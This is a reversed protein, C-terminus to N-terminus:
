SWRSNNYNIRNPIFKLLYFMSPPLSAKLKEAKESDKLLLTYLHRQCRVKFKVTTSKKSKKIRAATEGDTEPRAETEKEM